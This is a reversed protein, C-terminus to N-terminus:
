ATTRNQEVIQQAIDLSVFRCDIQNLLRGFSRGVRALAHPEARANQGLKWEENQGFPPSQLNEVVCDRLLPVFFDVPRPSFCFLLTDWDYTCIIITCPIVDACSTSKDINEHETTSCM